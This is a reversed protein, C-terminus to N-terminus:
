ASRTLVRGLAHDLAAGLEATTARSAPPLARVVVDSAPPLDGTRAAVLHRLRRATRNRVVANGVAKSVVFGVRPCAGGSAVATADPRPLSVHM